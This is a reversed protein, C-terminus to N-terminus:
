EFLKDYDYNMYFDWEEQCYAEYNDYTLKHKGEHLWQLIQSNVAGSHHAVDRYNNADCIVDYETNFSYVHINEYPLLMEIIHREALLRRELEGTLYWYDMCYVSYPSIYIYFDIQPNEEALAIVNQRINGEITAYDEETIPVMETKTLTDRKYNAMVADYGYSYYDNWNAYNDFSLEIKGGRNFGLVNQIAM